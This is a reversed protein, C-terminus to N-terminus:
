AGNLLGFIRRLLEEHDEVNHQFIGLDKLDVLDVTTFPPNSPSFTISQFCSRGSEAHDTVLIFYLSPWHRRALMFVSSHGRKNELSIFQDIFPRYKVEVLFEEGHDDDLSSVYFNPSFDERGLRLPSTNTSRFSRLQYRARRFISEVLAEAIRSKTEYLDV